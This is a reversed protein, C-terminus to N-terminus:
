SRKSHRQWFSSQGVIAGDCACLYEDVRGMGFHEGCVQVVVESVLYPDCVASM